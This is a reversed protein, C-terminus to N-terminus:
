KGIIERFSGPLADVIDMSTMGTEGTKEAAMDGARGHIYVAARISSIPNMSPISRGASASSSAILAATIGTLVDGSGGTAMGANGTRNVYIDAETMAPAAGAANANASAIITEHGKLVIVAGTTEALTRATEERSKESYRGCGLSTLMRDAEGPHPTMIVPQKRKRAIDPLISTMKRPVGIEDLPESDMYSSGTPANGFQCLANIGDADIIVPGSYGLLLHEVIRYTEETCGMGCGVAICDYDDLDMRTAKEASFLADRDTCMAEPAVIQVVTFLERPLAVTVLGAGSRLAARACLAAAGAMGESGCILLVHGFHGKHSGEDRPSMMERLEEIKTEKIDM